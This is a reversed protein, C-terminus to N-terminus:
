VLAPILVNCHVMNSGKMMVNCLLRTKTSTSKIRKQLLEHSSIAVNLEPPSASTSAWLQFSEWPHKKERLTNSFAAALEPLRRSLRLAEGPSSGTSGPSPRRRGQFAIVDDHLEALIGHLLTFGGRVLVSALGRGKCGGWGTQSFSGSSNFHKKVRFATFWLFVFEVTHLHNHCSWLLPKVTTFYSVETNPKQKINHKKNIKFPAPQIFLKFNIIVHCLCLSM